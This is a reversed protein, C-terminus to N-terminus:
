AEKPAEPDPVPTICYYASNDLLRQIVRPSSDRPFPTMAWKEALAMGISEADKPENGGALLVRFVAEQMPTDPLLFDQEQSCHASIQDIFDQPDLAVIEDEALGQQCMYCQRSSVLVALSRQLKEATAPDIFYERPKSADNLENMVTPSGLPPMSVNDVM